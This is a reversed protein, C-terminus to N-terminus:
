AEGEPEANALVCELFSTEEFYAENGDILIPQEATARWVPEAIAIAGEEDKPLSWHPLVGKLILDNLASLRNEIAFVKDPEGPFLQIMAIARGEFDRRESPLRHVEETALLLDEMTVTAMQMREVIGPQRETM